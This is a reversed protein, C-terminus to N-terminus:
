EPLYVQITIDAAQLLPLWPALLDLAAPQEAATTLAGLLGLGEVLALTQGVEGRNWALYPLPKGDLDLHLGDQDAALRIEKFGARQLDELMDVDLRLAGWPLGTAAQWQADTVDNVLFSGNERYTVPIHLVPRSGAETLAQRQQTQFEAGAPDTAMLPLPTAEEQLPFRVTVGVGLQPLIPLLDVLEPPLAYGLQAALDAANQLRAADWALGPLAAGNVFLRLGNPTNSVQVHQIGANRAVDIATGPLTLRSVGGPLVTALEAATIGALTPAGSDDYDVTIAPLDLVLGSEGTAATLGADPRASCGALLLGFLILILCSIRRQMAKREDVSNQQLSKVM